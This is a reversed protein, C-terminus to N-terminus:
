KVSSKHAIPFNEAPFTCGHPSKIQYAEKLGIEWGWGEAGTAVEIGSMTKTAELFFIAEDLHMVISQKSIRKKAKKLCARVHGDDNLSFQAIVFENALYVKGLEVKKMLHAIFVAIDRAIKSPRGGRPVLIFGDPIEIADTM